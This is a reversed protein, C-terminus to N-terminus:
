GGITDIKSYSSNVVYLPSQMMVQTVSTLSTRLLSPRQENRRRRRTIRSGLTIKDRIMQIIRDPIVQTSQSCMPTAHATPPLIAPRRRPVSTIIIIRADLINKAQTTIAATPTIRTITPNRRTTHLTNVPFAHTHPTHGTPTDIKIDTTTNTSTRGGPQLQRPPLPPRPPRRLQHRNLQAIIHYKPGNRVRKLDMCKSSVM